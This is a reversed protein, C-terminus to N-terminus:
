SIIGPMKSIPPKKWVDYNVREPWCDFPNGLRTNKPLQYDISITLVPDGLRLPLLSSNGPAWSNEQVDTMRKM